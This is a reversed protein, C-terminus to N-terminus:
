RVACYLADKQLASSSDALVNPICHDLAKFETLVGLEKAARRADDRLANLAKEGRLRLLRELREELEKRPITKSAAMGSRTRQINELFARPQSAIFLAGMFPKDSTGAPPGKLFRVTLGPLRVTRSYSTTLFVEWKATPKGELATRHSLTAKPFLGRLIEYLNDQVVKSPSDSLNTTYLRPAIKRAKGARLLRRLRKAERNASTGFIIESLPTMKKKEISNQADFLV